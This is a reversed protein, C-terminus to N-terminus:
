IRRTRAWRIFKGKRKTLVASSNILPANYNPIKSLPYRGTANLSLKNEYFNLSSHNEKLNKMSSSVKPLKYVPAPKKRYIISASATLDYAGPGPNANRILLDEFKHNRSKLTTILNRNIEKPDYKGPGM